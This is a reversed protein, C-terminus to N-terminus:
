RRAQRGDLRNVLVQHLRADVVRNVAADDIERRISGLQWAAGASVAGVAMMIALWRKM